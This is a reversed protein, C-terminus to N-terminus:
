DRIGRRHEGDGARLVGTHFIGDPEAVPAVPLFLPSDEDVAGAFQVARNGRAHPEHFRENALRQALAVVCLAQQGHKGLAAALHEADALRHELLQREALPRFAHQAHGLRGPRRQRRKVYSALQPPLEVAM